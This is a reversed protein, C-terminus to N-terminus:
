RLKYEVLFHEKYVQGFGGQGLKNSESFKDTAAEIAKFDFQLSGATTIDDRDALPETEYTTTKRKARFSFFVALLLLFIVSIPVVVAIVIVSSNGGEGTKVFIDPQTSPISIPPPPPASDLQPSPASDLQPPPASDLQSQSAGINSENYFQYLEYRSNCSPVLIRGGIKDTRLENITQNLCSLCDQSTLDPTCQVLGYLNQFPTFNAMRADFRRPSSSAVTAAPNMMSLVLDRFGIQENYTVNRVNYLRYRGNTNLTSLINRNSYRLMCEDYYLTVERQNPCRNLTDNVAFAVCGRCIEPTVDGRCLYLGTVRDPAQGATANLFGPSYSHFPSSLSSLLDILNTFYNSNRAFTTTNPCNHSLYTPDLISVRFFTYRLMCQNYYIMVEKENPCRVLIDKVAFAVCSRCLEPSFGGLCSFLGSVREPPSGVTVNQFGTAYSANPSSLSSLLTRLNTSSNSNRSYTTTNPCSHYVYTPEQASVKFSTLFSFLFIFIFSICSSM